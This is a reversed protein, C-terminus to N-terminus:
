LHVVFGYFDIYNQNRVTLCLRLDFFYKERFNEDDAGYFYICPVYM